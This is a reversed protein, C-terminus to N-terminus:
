YRVNLDYLVISNSSGFVILNEKTDLCHPYRNVSCSVYVNKCDLIDM